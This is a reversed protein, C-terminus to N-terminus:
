RDDEVGGYAYEGNEDAHRGNEMVFFKRIYKMLTRTIVVVNQRWEENTEAGGMSDLVIHKIKNGVVNGSVLEGNVKSMVSVMVESMRDSLSDSSYYPNRPFRHSLEDSIERSMSPISDSLYSNCDTWIDMMGEDLLESERSASM